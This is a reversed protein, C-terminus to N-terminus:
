QRVLNGLGLKEERWRWVSALSKELICIGGECRFNKM